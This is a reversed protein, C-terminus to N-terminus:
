APETELFRRGAAEFRAFVAKAAEVALGIREPGYLHEELIELLRPWSGKPAEAGLFRMPFSTPLRRRLVAGGLRSGELVYLAGLQSSPDPLSPPVEDAAVMGLDDLDSQLLVSRRRVPWDEVLKGVDARDLADEVALHPGAQAALFRRYHAPDSLDLQSFLADVRDHDGRTESRLIRRATV